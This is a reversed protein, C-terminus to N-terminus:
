FCGGPNQAYNHPKQQTPHPKGGPGKHKKERLYCRKKIPTGL